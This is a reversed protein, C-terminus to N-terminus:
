HLSEGQIARLIVGWPIEEGAYWARYFVALVPTNGDQGEPSDSTTVQLYRAACPSRDIGEQVVCRGSFHKVIAGFLPQPVDCSDCNPLPCKQCPLALPASRPFKKPLQTMEANM